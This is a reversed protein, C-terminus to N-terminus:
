PAAAPLPGWEYSEAKLVRPRLSPTSGNMAHLEDDGGHLRRPAAGTDVWFTTHINGVFPATVALDVAFATVTTAGLSAYVPAALTYTATVQEAVSGAECTGLYKTADFTGAGADFTVIRGDADAPCSRWEGGLDDPVPATQLARAMAQLDVPRLAVTSGDLPDANDGVHLAEPTAAADRYFLTYFTAAGPGGPTVDVLMARVTALGLGAATLPGYVATMSDPAGSVGDGDCTVDATAYDIIQNVVSAGDITLIERYDKALDNRCVAWTGDFLHTLTIVYSATGVASPTHGPATAIAALAGSAPVTVAGGYVPSSGTPTSGDTTFRIVAGPTTTSITVAQADAYTGGPPSFTPTAAVPDAGDGSGGGCASGVVALAALISTFHSM